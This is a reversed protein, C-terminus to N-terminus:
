SALVSYTLFRDLDSVVILKVTVAGEHILAQKVVNRLDVGVISPM